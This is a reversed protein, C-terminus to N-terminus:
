EWVYIIIKEVLIDDHVVEVMRYLRDFIDYLRLVQVIVVDITTANYM